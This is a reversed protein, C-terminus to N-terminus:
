GAKREAKRLAKRRAALRLRVDETSLGGEAQYRAQSRKLIAQFKPHTTVALNELDTGVAVPMLAVVPKGKITVVWPEKRAKRAYDSLSGIADAMEVTKM